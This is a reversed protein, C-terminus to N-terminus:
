LTANLTVAPGAYAVSGLVFFRAGLRCALERAEENSPVESGLQAAVRGFSVVESLREVPRFRSIFYEPLQSAPYPATGLVAFPMVALRNPEDRPLGCSGRAGTVIRLVGAGSVALIAAAAWPRWARRQAADLQALWAGAKAPRDDPRGALPTVLAAALRASVKSPGIRLTRALSAPRSQFVPPAGALAEFAVVALSYLDARGDVRGSMTQEPAMYGPTGIAAGPQTLSTEEAGEVRAIGFDALLARGSDEDLLINAPKVDRHVIGRRHAYGLADGIERVIRLVQDTTLRASNRLREELSDGRVFTMILFSIGDRTDFDYVRVVHPHDLSAGLTAERRFRERRMGSAAVEPPLVKVAVIHGLTRHRARFVAGMGGVGALSLVEYRDGVAHQVADLDPTQMPALSHVQAQGRGSRARYESAGHWGQVTAHETGHTDGDGTRLRGRLEQPTFVDRQEDVQRPAGTLAAGALVQDAQQPAVAVLALGAVRQAFREAHQPAGEPVLPEQGVDILNPQRRIRHREVAVPEGLQALPALPRGRGREHIALEELSERDRLRVIELGPEGGLPRQPPRLRELGQHLSDRRVQGSAVRRRRSSHSEAGDREVARGLRGGARRHPRQRQRAIAGGSQAHGVVQRVGQVLCEPRLHAVFGRTQDRPDPISADPAAHDGGWGVGTRSRRQHAAADLQRHERRRPLPCAAPPPLHHDDLALGPLPLGPEHFLQHGVNPEIVRADGRSAGHGTFLLHLPAGQRPPEVRRRQPFQHAPREGAVLRVVRLAQGAPYLAVGSTERQERDGHKLGYGASERGRWIRGGPRGRVPCEDVGERAIQGRGDDADHAPPVAREGLGRLQREARRGGQFLPHVRDAQSAGGPKVARRQLLGEIRELPLAPQHGVRPSVNEGSRDLPGNQQLLHNGGALRATVARVSASSIPKIGYACRTGPGRGPSVMCNPCRPIASAIADRSGRGSVNRTTPAACNRGFASERIM